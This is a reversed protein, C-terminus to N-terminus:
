RSVSRHWAIGREGSTRHSTSPWFMPQGALKCGMSIGTLRTAATTSAAPADVRSPRAFCSRRRSPSGSTRRAARAANPVPADVLPQDALTVLVADCGADLAARAGIRLSSAMGTEWADNVVASVPLGDLAQRVLDAHAGLVVIVPEAGADLAARAARRVLPEGEHVVLQKSRGLRASGGAALVVAAIRTVSADRDRM